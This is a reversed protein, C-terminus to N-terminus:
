KKVKKCKSPQPLIGSIIAQYEEDSIEGKNHLHEVYIRGIFGTAYQISRIVPFFDDVALLGSAGEKGDKQFTVETDYQEGDDTVKICITFLEKKKNKKAM